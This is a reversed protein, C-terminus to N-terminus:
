PSTYNPSRATRDASTTADGCRGGPTTGGIGTCPVIGFPYPNTNFNGLPAGAQPTTNVLRGNHYEYYTPYSQLVVSPASGGAAKFSIKSGINEWFVPVKQSGLDKGTLTDFARVAGADPSGDNILSYRSSDSAMIPEPGNAPGAQGPFSLLFTSVAGCPNKTVGIIVQRHLVIPTGVFSGASNVRYKVQLRNFLKFNSSDRTFSLVKEEDTSSTLANRFSGGSITATPDPNPRVQLAM